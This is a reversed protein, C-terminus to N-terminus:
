LITCILMAQGGDGGSGAFHVHGDILGPVARLGGAQIIEGGFRTVESSSIENEIALIIGGGLLIDKKGMPEPAFVECNKLLIM